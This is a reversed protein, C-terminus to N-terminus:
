AYAKMAFVAAVVAGVSCGKDGAGVAAGAISRARFISPIHELSGVGPEFATEKSCYCRLLGRDRVSRTDGFVQFLWSFFRATERVLDHRTNFVRNM